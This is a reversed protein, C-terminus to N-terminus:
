RNSYRSLQEESKRSEIGSDTKPPPSPSLPDNNTTAPVADDETTSQQPQSALPDNNEVASIESKTGDVGSPSPEPPSVDGTSKEPEEAEGSREVPTAEIPTAGMAAPPPGPQADHNQPVAEQPEEHQGTSLPHTPPLPKSTDIASQLPSNNQVPPLQPPAEQKPPTEIRTPTQNQKPTPTEQDQKSKKGRKFMGKFARKLTDVANPAAEPCRILEQHSAFLYLWQCKRVGPM